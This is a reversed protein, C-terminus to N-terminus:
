EKPYLRITHFHDITWDKLGLTLKVASAAIFAKVSDPLIINRIGMILTTAAYKRVRKRYLQQKDPSLEKYYIIYSLVDHLETESMSLPLIVPEEPYFHPTEFIAQSFNPLM